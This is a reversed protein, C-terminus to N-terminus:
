HAQWLSPTPPDRTLTGLHKAQWMGTSGRGVEAWHSMNPVLQPCQSIHCLASGQEPSGPCSKTCRPHIGLRGAETVCGLSGAFLMCCCKRLYIGVYISKERIWELFQLSSTYNDIRYKQQRPFLCHISWLANFVQVSFDLGNCLFSYLLNLIFRQFFEPFSVEPKFSYSFPWSYPLPRKSRRYKSSQSM